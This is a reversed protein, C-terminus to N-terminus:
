RRAPETTNEPSPVAPSNTSSITVGNRPHVYVAIINSSYVEGPKDGERSTASLRPNPIMEVTYDFDGTSGRLVKSTEATQVTEQSTDTTSAIHNDASRCGFGAVIVALPILCNSIKM